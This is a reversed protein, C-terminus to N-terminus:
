SKLGAAGTSCTEKNLGAPPKSESSAEPTLSIGALSQQRGDWWSWAQAVLTGSLMCGFMFLAPAVAIGPRDPFLKLGLMAGLGANQMGVEITLARRMPEDLRLAFGGFYGALYGCVNLCILASILVPNLVSLRERNMAIVAGIVWLIALNAITPGSSNLVVGAKAWLQAISFGVSVPLVVTWLLTIAANLLLAYQANDWKQLTLGLAVPVAIPSLMTALTTLGVSYSANGRAHMTILNSAMAGPVCGVMVVGIFDDESLPFLKAFLYALAPMSGYQVVTGSLVTTWRRAVGRVEEKPLMAGIFFMAVCILYSLQQGTLALFPNWINPPWWQAAASVMLFIPLLWRAIM